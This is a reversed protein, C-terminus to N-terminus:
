QDDSRNLRDLLSDIMEQQAKIQSRLTELQDTMSEV